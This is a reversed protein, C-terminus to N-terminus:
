KLYNSKTKGPGVYNFMLSGPLDERLLELQSKDRGKRDAHGMQTDPVGLCGETADIYARGSAASKVDQSLNFLDEKTNKFDTNMFERYIDKGPLRKADKGESMEWTKNVYEQNPTRWGHVVIERSSMNGNNKDIGQLTVNNLYTLGSSAASAVYFGESSLNSKDENSTQPHGGRKDAGKEQSRDKGGGHAVWTNHLVKNTKLDIVYMRRENSPRTYDVVTIQDPNTLLSKKDSKLIADRGALAERFAEESVFPCEPEGDDSETFIGREVLGEAVIDKKYGETSKSLGEMEQLMVGRLRAMTDFRSDNTDVTKDILEEGYKITEASLGYDQAVEKFRTKKTQATPYFQQQTMFQMTKMLKEFLVPSLKDKPDNLVKEPSCLASSLFEKKIQDYQSDSDHNVTKLITEANTEVKADVKVEDICVEPAPVKPKELNLVIPILEGAPNPISKAPAEKKNVVEAEPAPAPAPEDDQDDGDPLGPIESSFGPIKKPAVVAPAPTKDEEVVKEDKEPEEKTAPARDIAGTANKFKSMLSKCMPKSKQVGISGDVCVKHALNSVEKLAAKEDASMTKLFGYNGKQKFKSDCSAFAMQKDKPSAFGVCIGKGFIVPQCQLQGSKCSGKSYEANGKAPNVCLRKGNSKVLTSPWGAFFCNYNGSAIAEEFLSFRLLLNKETSSTLMEPNKQEFDIIFSRLDKVWDVRTKYDEDVSAEIQLALAFLCLVFLHKFM